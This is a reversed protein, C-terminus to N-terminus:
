QLGSIVRGFSAEVATKSNALCFALPKSVNGRQASAVPAMLAMVMVTRSNDGCNSRSGLNEMEVLLAPFVM